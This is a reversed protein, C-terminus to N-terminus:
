VLLVLCSCTSSFLQLGLFVRHTNALFEIGCCGYRPWWKGVCGVCTEAPPGVRLNQLTFSKKTETFFINARLQSFSSREMKGEWNKIRRKANKTKAFRLFFPFRRREM